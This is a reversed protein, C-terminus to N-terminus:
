INLTPDSEFYCSGLECRALFDKFSESHRSAVSYIHIQNSDREEKSSFLGIIEDPSRVTEASEGGATVDITEDPNRRLFDVTEQKLQAPVIALVPVKIQNAIYNKLLMYGESIREVKGKRQRSMINVLSDIVLVDFPNRTKYHDDLVDIFDEAYAVGEIFSLRGFETGKFLSTRASIIAEQKKKGEPSIDRLYSKMLIQKSDISLNHQTRLYCSIQMAIWEERTGELPWVCVNLGNQLARQVLYNAMRTKGGKPPGLIGILNGRRMEGMVSDIETLGFSLISNKDEQGKGEKDLEDELYTSDVVVSKISAEDSLERLVGLRENYYERAATAGKYHVSRKNPKKVTLGGETLIIAMNQVTELIYEDEFWQKYIICQSDFEEESVSINSLAKLLETASAKFALVKEDDTVPNASDIACYKQIDIYPSNLILDANNDVMNSLTSENLFVVRKNHIIDWFLAYENIFANVTFIANFKSLNSRMSAVKEKAAPNDTRLEGILIASFIKNVVELIRPSYERM